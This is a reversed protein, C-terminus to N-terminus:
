GSPTPTNEKTTAVTFQVYLLDGFFQGKDDMMKWQSSYSGITGPAKMPVSLNIINGPEVPKSLPFSLVESVITGDLYVFKYNANWTTTGLNQVRWIKTFSENPFFVTGDPISLDTQSTPIGPQIALTTSQTPLTFELTTTTRTSTPLSTPIQAPTNTVSLTMEAHITQAVQTIILNPDSTQTQGGSGCSTIIMFVVLSCFFVFVIKKSFM